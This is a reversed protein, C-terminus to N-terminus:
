HGGAAESYRPNYTENFLWFRGERAAAARSRHRSRYTPKEEGIYGKHCSWRGNSLFIRAWRITRQGRANTMRGVWGREM